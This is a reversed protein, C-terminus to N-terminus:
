GLGWYGHTLKQKPLKYGMRQYTVLTAGLAYGGDSGNPQIFM